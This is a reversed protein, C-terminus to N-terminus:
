FLNEYWQDSDELDSIQDRMDKIQFNMDEMQSQHARQISTLQDEAQSMLNDEQRIMAENVSTLSKNQAIESAGTALGKGRKVIGGLSDSLNDIQDGFAGRANSLQDGVGEWLNSIDDRVHGVAKSMSGEIHEIGEGLKAIQKRSKKASDFAGMVWDAAMLGVGLPGLLAGTTAAAGGTMMGAASTMMSGAKGAGGSYYEPMGTEPNTTGSGLLETLEEGSKGYTDILFAEYPNVHSDEGDVKRIETDGFRGKTALVNRNDSYAM